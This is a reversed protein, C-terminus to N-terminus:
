KYQNTYACERARSEFKQEPFRPTRPMGRELTRAGANRWQPDALWSSPRHVQAVGFRGAGRMREGWHGTFPVSPVPCQASPLRRPFNAGAFVVLPHDVGSVGLAPALTM